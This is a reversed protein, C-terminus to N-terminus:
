DFDYRIIACNEVQYACFEEVTMDRFYSERVRAIGNHGVLIYTREPQAKLEDLLSYIRHAVQLTSEGTGFRDTFRRKAERFADCDRPTSEFYGFHQEFLRPEARMPIGTAESIHRATDRARSLPSPLIEDATLGQEVFRRGTEIAQQHGRETLAVDTAGCIKNEVNWVTQGHRVFYFHGM